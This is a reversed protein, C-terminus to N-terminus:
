KWRAYMEKLCFACAALLREVNVRSLSLCFLLEEEEVGWEKEEEERQEEENEEKEDGSHSCEADITSKHKCANTFGICLQSTHTRRLKKKKTFM